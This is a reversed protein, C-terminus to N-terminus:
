ARRGSRRVEDLKMWQDTDNVFGTFAARTVGDTAGSAPRAMPPLRSVQHDIMIGFWKAVYDRNCTTQQEQEGIKSEPYPLEFTRRLAEDGNLAKIALPLSLCRDLAEPTPARRVQDGSVNSRSPEINRLHDM